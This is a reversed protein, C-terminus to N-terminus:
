LNTELPLKVTLVFGPNSQEWSVSGGQEKAREQMGKLGNGADIETVSIGNDSVTLQCQQGANSLEIKCRNARAHRAVNTVAEQTCRLLTEAINVDNIPPADDFDVEFDLDPIDAVIKEISQKLDIADNERLESVATRLDSILLKALALSQEVKDNAKGETCHSAVELNLILATMHHGLLDHLDRAIRVRENQRASQSLLERTAILERNLVGTEERLQRENIARRSASLAFLHFLGLTLSSVIASLTDTGYWHYFQSVAFVSVCGALLWTTKRPEHIETAQVIWIIGLIAIFSISIFFYLSVIFLAQLWLLLVQRQRLQGGWDSIFVLYSVFNAVLLVSVVPLFVTDSVIYASVLGVVAM